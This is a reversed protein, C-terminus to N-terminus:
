DEADKAREARVARDIQDQLRGFDDESGSEEAKIMQELASDFAAFGADERVKSGAVALEEDGLVEELMENFTEDDVEATDILRQISSDKFRLVLNQLSTRDKRRELMGLQRAFRTLATRSLSLRRLETNMFGRDIEMQRLERFVDRELEARGDKKARVAAKLKLQKAQEALDLDRRKKTQEREVEKLQVRLDETTPTKRFMRTWVDVVSTMTAM